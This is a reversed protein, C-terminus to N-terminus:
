TAPRTRRARMRQVAALVDEDQALMAQGLRETWDLDEAMRSVVTPFGSMLVLVSPDFDQRGPEGSLEDEGM